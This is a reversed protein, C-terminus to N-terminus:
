ESRTGNRYASPTVGYKKAFCKYCWSVNNFGSEFVIDLIDHNSYRLMNAIYNLRLDNIYESVTVGYYKKMSRAVHERSKDTLESICSIGKVFNNDIRLNERLDTLWAPADSYLESHPDRLFHDSILSSLLGRLSRKLTARDAGILRVHTMEESLERLDTDSLFVTPPLAPSHLHAYADSDGLYNLLAGFLESTFTLNLMEFSKGGECVYDHTDTPRIFVAMGRKLPVEFGNVIHLANGNLPIFIEYYDHYHPRFYETSSHVYRYSCGLETDVFREAELLKAEM